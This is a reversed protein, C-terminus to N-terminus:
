VLDEALLRAFDTRRVLPKFKRTFDTGRLWFSRWSGEIPVVHVACEEHNVDLILYVQGSEAAEWEEHPKCPLPIREAPQKSSKRFYFRFDEATMTNRNEDDAYLVAAYPDFSDGHVNMVTVLEGTGREVWISGREIPPIVQTGETFRFSCAHCFWATGASREVSEEQTCRPCRM